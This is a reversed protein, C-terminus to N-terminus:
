QLLHAAMPFWARFQAGFEEPPLVLFSADTIARVTGRYNPDGEKGLYFQVSGSYVGRQDTRTTEVEQGGVTRYLGITGSLLVFFGTAPQGETTVETGAPYDEVRGNSAVWDLQEDTLETFLFLDRLEDPTM